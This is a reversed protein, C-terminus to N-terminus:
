VINFIDFTFSMIIFFLPKIKILHSLCIPTHNEIYNTQYYYYKQAPQRFIDEKLFLLRSQCLGALM